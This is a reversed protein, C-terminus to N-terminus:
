CPWWAAAATGGRSCAGQQQDGAAAPSGGAGGARGPHGQHCHHRARRPPRAGAGGKPPSPASLHQHAECLCTTHHLALPLVHMGCAHQMSTPCAAQTSPSADGRWQGMASTLQLQMRWPAASCAHMRECSQAGMAEAHAQHMCALCARVQPITRGYRPVPITGFVVPGADLAKLVAPFFKTSLLEMKGVEDIVCLRCDAALKLAPMALAEFCPVDVV